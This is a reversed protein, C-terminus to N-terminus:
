LSDLVAGSKADIVVKSIETSGQRFTLFWVLKGDWGSSKILDYVYLGEGSIGSASYAESSDIFDALSFTQMSATQPDESGRILQGSRGVFYSLKKGQSKSHLIFNWGSPRGDKGEQGGLVSESTSFAEAIQADASWKIAEKELYAWAGKATLMEGTRNPTISVSASTPTNRTLIVAIGVVALLAVVASAIILTLQNKKM